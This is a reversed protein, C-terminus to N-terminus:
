ERRKRSQISCCAPFVFHNISFQGSVGRQVEVVKGDKGVLGEHKHRVEIHQYSFVAGTLGMHHFGKVGPLECPMQGSGALLGVKRPNKCLSVPRFCYPLQLARLCAGCISRSLKAGVRPFNAELLTMHDSSKASIVGFEMKSWYSWISVSSIRRWSLSALLRRHAEVRFATRAKIEGGGSVAHDM